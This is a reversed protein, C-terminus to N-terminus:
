RIVVQITTFAPDETPTADGDTFASVCLDTVAMNTPIGVFAGLITGTGAALGADSVVCPSTFDLFNSGNDISGKLRVQGSAGGDATGGIAIAIETRGTADIFARRNAAIETVADPANTVTVAAGALLTLTEAGGADITVSGTGGVPSPKTIYASQETPPRIISASQSM